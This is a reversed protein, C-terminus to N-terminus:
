LHDKFLDGGGVDAVQHHGYHDHHHHENHLLQIVFEFGLQRNGDGYFNNHHSVKLSFVGEVSASM